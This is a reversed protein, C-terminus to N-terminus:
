VVDEVIQGNESKLHKYPCRLIGEEDEKEECLGNQIKIASDMNRLAVSVPNTDDEDAFAAEVPIFVTNKCDVGKINAGFFDEPFNIALFVEAVSISECEIVGLTMNRKTSILEYKAM